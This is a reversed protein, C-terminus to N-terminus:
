PLVTPKANRTYYSLMMANGGSITMLEVNIPNNKWVFIRTIEDAQDGRDENMEGFQSSIASKLTQIKASDVTESKDFLPSIRSFLVACVTDNLIIASARDWDVGLYNVSINSTSIFSLGLSDAQQYPYNHDNLSKKVEDASQGIHFAWLESQAEKKQSCSVLIASFLMMIAVLKKM